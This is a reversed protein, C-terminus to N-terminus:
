REAGLKMDSYVAKLETELEAIKASKENITDLACIYKERQRVMRRRAEFMLNSHDINRTEAAAQILRESLDTM